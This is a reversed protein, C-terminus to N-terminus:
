RRFVYAWGLLTWAVGFKWADNTRLTEGSFPRNVWERIAFALVVCGIVGAIWPLWRVPTPNLFLQSQGVRFQGLSWVFLGAPVWWDAFMCIRDSWRLDPPSSWSDYSSIGLLGLPLYAALVAFAVGIVVNSRFNVVRVRRETRLQELALM